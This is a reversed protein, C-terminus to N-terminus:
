MGRQPGFVNVTAVDNDPSKTFDLDREMQETTVPNIRQVKSESGSGLADDPIFVTFLFYPVV